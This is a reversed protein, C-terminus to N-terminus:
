VYVYWRLVHVKEKDDSEEYDYRWYEERIAGLRFDEEENLEPYREEAVQDELMDTSRYKAYFLCYFVSLYM